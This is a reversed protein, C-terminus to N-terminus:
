MDHLIHALRKLLGGLHAERELILVKLNNNHARIACALGAPGGGIIIADYKNM